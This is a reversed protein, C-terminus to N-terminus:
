ELISWIIPLLDSRLLHLLVSIMVFLRESWLAILNSSLIWFDVWFWVAEHFSFLQSKFISQIFLLIFAYIFFKKSVLSFSSVDYWFRQSVNLATELPFYIAIVAWMLLTFLDLISVRVYFNFSSSSCSWFVEFGLLLCFIFDSCFQLLYLCLFGEFYWYIWSTTKQFSWCFLCIVLWVLLSYFLSSEFLCSLFILFPINGSIGCFYLSGDSFVIFM